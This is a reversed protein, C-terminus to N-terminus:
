LIWSHTASTDNLDDAGDDVHFEWTVDYRTNVVRQFYFARFGGQFNLLLQAVAHNTSNRHARGFAQLATQVDDVAACGNGDRDTFRGQATDHVDQAVRDVFSARDTFFLAPTNVAVCRGESVLCAAVVQQFGADLNDVQNAREGLTTLNTQETTGADALGYVHHFQDTVDGDLM